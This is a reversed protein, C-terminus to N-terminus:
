EGAVAKAPRRHRPKQSPANKPWVNKSRPHGQNQRNAGQRDNTRQARPQNNRGNRGNQIPEAKISPDPEYGPTTIRPIERKLLREIDKLLKHEDVCVLSVAQGTAEARGTRGIRHVYDEAVNPLEYNVVHPLQDIDLGRAAIDTAVLARIQGSKFDALARTRAGQSKNGHIAAATVGDKNLQEALRNAGHKTRTFVLVQQWNQSGIMYSLLEGKRKKDVFHVAQEIQESASNRRAVEVSVPDRLLKNALNKIEDSFTASFLLNQRKAPLKNLVRRIDHIFGMDLMRDAEDLILMEVHSLDVANQHELDLLRGPTAVLIDVGGRLKMMQPNISVGGFVVFSRLRLYKSYNRVNEGVQAALERTPTLILARVPRRGKSQIPSESLLQLIPLTFGATKGTGTQASALLDKGSLVVPIAQQQIPTPEAYGQEEIARLIDAKLGLSEFNM